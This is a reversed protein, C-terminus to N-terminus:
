GAIFFTLVVEIATLAIAISVAVAILKFWDRRRVPNRGM